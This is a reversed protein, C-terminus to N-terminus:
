RAKPHVDIYNAESQYRYRLIPGSVDAFSRRQLEGRPFPLPPPEWNLPSNSIPQRESRRCLGIEFLPPSSTEPALVISLSLMNDRAM